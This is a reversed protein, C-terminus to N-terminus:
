EHNVLDNLSRSKYYKEVFAKYMWWDSHDGIPAVCLKEPNYHKGKVVFKNPTIFKIAGSHIHMNWLEGRVEPTDPLSMEFPFEPLTM